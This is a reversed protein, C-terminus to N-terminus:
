ENLSRLIEEELEELYYIEEWDYCPNCLEQIPDLDDKHQLLENCAKCRGTM